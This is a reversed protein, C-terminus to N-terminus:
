RAFPIADEDSRRAGSNDADVAPHNPELVPVEERLEVPV